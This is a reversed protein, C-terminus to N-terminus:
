RMACAASIRRAFDWLTFIQVLRIGELLKRFQLFLYTVRIITLDFPGESRGSEKGFHWTCNNEIKSM